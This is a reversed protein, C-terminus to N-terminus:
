EEDEGDDEYNRMIGELSSMLAADKAEDVQMDSKEVVPTPEDDGQDGPDEGSKGAGEEAGQVPEASDSESKSKSSSAESVEALLSLARVELDERTGCGLTDFATDGARVFVLLFSGGESEMVRLEGEGTPAVCLQRGEQISERWTLEVDGLRMTKPKPCAGIDGGSALFAQPDPLGATALDRAIRKLSAKEGCGYTLLSDDDGEYYLAHAGSIMPVIRFVGKEFRAILTERGQITQKRWRLRVPSTPAEVLEPKPGSEEVEVTAPAAAGPLSYRTRRGQGQKTLHGADFLRILGAIVQMRDGGVVKHVKPATEAGDSVATLIQKDYAERAAISSLDRASSTKEKQQATTKASGKNAKAKAKKPKPKAKTRASSKAQASSKAKSSSKAQASSKAKSSGSSKAPSESKDEESAAKEARAPEAPTTDPTAENDPSAELELAEPSCPWPAGPTLERQMVRGSSRDTVEITIRSIELEM